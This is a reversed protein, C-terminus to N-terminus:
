KKHQMSYNKKCKFCLSLYNNLIVSNIKNLAQRFTMAHKTRMRFNELSACSNLKDNSGEACTVSGRHVESLVIM